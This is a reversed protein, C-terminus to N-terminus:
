RATTGRRFVSFGSPVVPSTFHGLGFGSPVFPAVVFGLYSQQSATGQALHKHPGGTQIRNQPLSDHGPSTTKEPQGDREQGEESM